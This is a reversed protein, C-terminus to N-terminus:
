RAGNGWASRGKGRLLSSHTWDEDRNYHGDRPLSFCGAVLFVMPVKVELLELTQTCLSSKWLNIDTTHRLWEQVSRVGAVQFIVIADYASLRKKHRL